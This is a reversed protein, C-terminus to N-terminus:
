DMSFKGFLSHLINRVRGRGHTVEAEVRRDGERVRPPATHTVAPPRLLLDTGLYESEAPGPTLIDISSM